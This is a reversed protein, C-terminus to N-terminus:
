NELSCINLAQWFKKEKESLQRTSNKFFRCFFKLVSLSLNKKIFIRNYRSIKDPLYINQCMTYQYYPKVNDIKNNFFGVFLKFFGFKDTKKFPKALVAGIYSTQVKLEGVEALPNQIKCSCNKTQRYALYEFM